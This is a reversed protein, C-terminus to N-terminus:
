RSRAAGLIRPAANPTRILFRRNREIRFGAAAIRAAFRAFLPHSVDTAMRVLM